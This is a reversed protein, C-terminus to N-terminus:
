YSPRLINPAFKPGAYIEAINM